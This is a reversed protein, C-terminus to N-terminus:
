SGVYRSLAMDQSFFADPLPIYPCLQHSEGHFSIVLLMSAMCVFLASTSKIM